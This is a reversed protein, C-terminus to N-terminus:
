EDDVEDMDDLVDTPVVAPSSVPSPAEAPETSASPSIREFLSAAASWQEKAVQLHSIQADALKAFFERFDGDKIDCWRQMEATIKANLVDTQDGNEECQRELDAITDTLKAMKEQKVAEPDRGFIAGFSLKQDSARVAELEARKAALSDLAVQANLQTVNRHQLVETACESYYQYDRLAEGFEEWADSQAQEMTGASELASQLAHFAQSLDKEADILGDLAVQAEQCGKALDALAPVAALSADSIDKLAGTLGGVYQEMAVFRQEPSWTCLKTSLVNWSEGMKNLFGAERSKRLTSFEHGRMTLFAHYADSTNLIPHAAVRQMFRELGRRRRELFDKDTKNRQLSHKPPVPPVIQARFEHRLVQRLWDFDSYRRLVSSGASKVTYVIYSELLGESQRKPDEVTVTESRAPPPAAAAAGDGADVAEM